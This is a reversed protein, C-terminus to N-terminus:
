YLVRANRIYGSVLADGAYSRLSMMSLPTHSMIRGCHINSQTAFSFITGSVLFYTTCDEGSHMHQSASLYKKWAVAARLSVSSYASSSLSVSSSGSSSGGEGEGDAERFLLDGRCSSGESGFSSILFSGDIASHNSTPALRCCLPLEFPPYMDPLSVSSSGSDSLSSTSGSAVNSSSSQSFTSCSEPLDCSSLLTVITSAAIGATSSRIFQRLPVSGLRAHTFIVVSHGVVFLTDEFVQLSSM